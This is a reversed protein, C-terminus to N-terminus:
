VKVDQKKLVVKINDERRSEELYHKEKLEESSFRPHM